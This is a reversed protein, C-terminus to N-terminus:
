QEIVNTVRVRTTATKGVGCNVTLDTTNIFKFTKKGLAKYDTTEHGPAITKVATTIRRSGSPDDLDTSSANIITNLAATAALQAPTCSGGTCVPSATLVCAPVPYQVIWTLTSEAGSKITKPYADVSVKPGPPPPAHFYLTTTASQVSGHKCILQYNGGFSVGISKAGAYVGSSFPTLERFLSYSDSNLCTFDISSPGGIGYDHVVTASSVQPDACEANITDWKGPGAACTATVTTSALEVASNYLYYTVNPYEASVSTPQSTGNNGTFVTGSPLNRTVASIGVPDVTTWTLNTTCTTGGTPVTCSAPFASITGTTAVCQDVGTSGPPSFPTAPPCPTPPKPPIGPPTNGGDCYTNPPCPIPPTPGECYNGATCPVCAFGNWYQGPSCSGGSTVVIDTWGGCNNNEDSEGVVGALDGASTKDACARVSYTGAASFIYSTNGWIIDGAALNAMLPIAIDTVTGGGGPATAVQFLNRFTRGTANTGINAILV